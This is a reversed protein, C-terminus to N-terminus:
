NERNAVVTAVTSSPLWGDTGDIMAFRVWGSRVELARGEVGDPLPMPYAAPAGLSDASRLLQGDEVVVAADDDPSRMWLSVVM